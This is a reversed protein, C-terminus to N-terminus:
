PECTAPEAAPKPTVSAPAVNAPGYPEVVCLLERRMPGPTAGSASRYARRTKPQAPEVSTVTSAMSQATSLSMSTILMDSPEGNPRDVSGDASADVLAAAEPTITTAEAPLLPADWYMVPAGLAPVPAILTAATSLVSDNGPTVSFRPEAPVMVAMLAFAADTVSPVLRGTTTRLSSGAVVSFSASPQLM